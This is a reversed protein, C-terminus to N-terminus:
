LTREPEDEKPRSPDRKTPKVAPTVSPATRPTATSRVPVVTPSPAPLPEDATPLPDPPPINPIAPVAAVTPPPSAPPPLPTRVSPETAHGLWAAIVVGLLLVGLAIPLGLSSKKPRLRFTTDVRDRSAQKKPPTSHTTKV